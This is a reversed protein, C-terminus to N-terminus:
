EELCIKVEDNLYIMGDSLIKATIGGHGRLANYGGVGLTEEMRSCPHCEGTGEFLVNGIYFKKNKLALLNIGSILLNRRLQQPEVEPLKMFAAIVPLHEAQILTVQRKSDQNISNTKRDGRLGVGKIAEVSQANIISGRRETRLGIWELKGSRPFINLLEKITFM